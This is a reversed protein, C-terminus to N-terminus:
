ATMREGRPDYPPKPLIKAGYRTGAIDLEFSRGATQAATEGPAVKVLALALTLGTRVGRAGSTTLGVVEGGELVPEDHVVLPDGDVSLLVLRQAIGEQKQRELAAKGRFEKSWDVTFGLGAELPTIEPGLDHGWHRYGKEIRCGNLAYHGMPGAGQAILADFVKAAGDNAVTIEWGLEGVYSIRTALCATGAIIVERATSFAFDNWDDQSASALVIRAAAGMVGIICYDESRDAITVDRGRAARRLLALDRRRTAAGSIVRFRDAALRTVTVDAEIGGRANLLPTYVARGAAVDLQAAALHNLLSLADRGSVDIKTFPTLDLLVAGHQMIAAEREAIPQWPQVGAVSYPLEREAANAAYWLGREWGVTLGFVAGQAAWRDHLPSVRLGRGARPQKFPWHVAFLDSVAEQMRERMHADWAAKPDARAIDVGWLDRPEKGSVIWDALVDGIGASSM